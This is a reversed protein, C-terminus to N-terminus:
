WSFIHAYHLFTYLHIAHCTKLLSTYILKKKETGSAGFTLMYWVWTILDALIGYLLGTRDGGAVSDTVFVCVMLLTSFDALTSTLIMGRAPLCGSTRAGCVTSILMSPLGACILDLGDFM